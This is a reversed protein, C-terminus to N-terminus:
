GAYEAKQAISDDLLQQLTDNISECYEVATMEGKFVAATNSNFEAFWEQNFTRSQTALRATNEFMDWFVYKSDPKLGSETYEGYAMSKLTPVAQGM